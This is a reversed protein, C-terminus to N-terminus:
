GGQWTMGQQSVVETLRLDGHLRSQLTGTLFVQSGAQLVRSEGKAAEGYSVVRLQVSKGSPNQCSLWYSLAPTGSPLHTYYPEGGLVGCASVQSGRVSESM